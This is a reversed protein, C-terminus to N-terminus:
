RTATKLLNLEVPSKAGAVALFHAAIVFSSSSSSSWARHISGSLKFWTAGRGEAASASASASALVHM